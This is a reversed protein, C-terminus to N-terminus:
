RLEKCRTLVTQKVGRYEGHEKVTGMLRVNDGKNYAKASTKWVFANGDADKFCIINVVGFQNEFSTMFEVTLEVSIRSGVVGVHESTSKSATHVQQADKVATCIEGEEHLHWEGYQDQIALEEITFKQTGDVAHDFYWGYAHQYRAGNAKLEDKRDFTDGLVVYISGDAAMGLKEFKEANKAPAKAKLRAVRREELKAAYEETYVKWTHRRRGTGNCDFCIGGDVYMYYQIYGKGNCKQCTHDEWYQTGNKDTRVLKATM